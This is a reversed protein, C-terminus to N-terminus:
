EVIVAYEDLEAIYRDCEEQTIMGSQVNARYAEEAIARHNVNEPPYETEAAKLEERLASLGFILEGKEAPEQQAKALSSGAPLEPQINLAYQSIFLRDASASRAAEGAKEAQAPEYVGETEGTIYYYDGRTTFGAGRDPKWLFLLYEQGERLSAYDEYIDSPDARDGEMRVTIEEAPAKGRLTEAVSITYDTHVLTGANDGVGYILFPESVASVTGRVVLTSEQILDELSYLVPYGFIVTVTEPLSSEQEPSVTFPLVAESASAGEEPQAALAPSRFFLVSGAVFVAMALSCSLITFVTKRKKM